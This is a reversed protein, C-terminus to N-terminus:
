KMKIINSEYGNYFGAHEKKYNQIDKLLRRYLFRGKNIPYFDMNKFAYAKYKLGHKKIHIERKIESCDGHEEYCPGTILIPM